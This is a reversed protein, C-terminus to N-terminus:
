ELGWEATLWCGMVADLGSQPEYRYPGDSIEVSRLMLYGAQCSLSLIDEIIEGISNRFELEADSQRNGDQYDSTIDREIQIKFAGSDLWAGTGIVRSKDASVASIMALPRVMATDPTYSGIFIFAKAADVTAAGVLTQFTTSSALLTKM